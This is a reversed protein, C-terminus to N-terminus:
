SFPEQCRKRALAATGAAGLGIESLFRRRDVSRGVAHESKDAQM